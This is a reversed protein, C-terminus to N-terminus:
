VRSHSPLWSLSPPRQLPGRPGPHATHGRGGAPGWGAMRGGAGPGWACVIGSGPGGSAQVRGGPLQWMRAHRDRLPVPHPCAGAKRRPALSAPSACHPFACPEPHGVGVLRAPPWPHVSLGLTPLSHESPGAPAEPLLAQPHLHAPGRPHLLTESPRIRQGQHPPQRSSPGWGSLPCLWPGPAAPPTSPSLPPRDGTWPGARAEQPLVTSPIPSGSPDEGEPPRHM